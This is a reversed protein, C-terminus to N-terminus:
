DMADEIASSAVDAVDIVGIPDILSLAMSKKGKEVASDVMEYDETVLGYLARAGHFVTGFLGMIKNNLTICNTETEYQL